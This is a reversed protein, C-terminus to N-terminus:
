YFGVWGAPLEMYHCGVCSLTSTGAGEVDHCDSCNVLGNHNDHVNYLGVKNYVTVDGPLLTNNVIADWDHCSLCFERTGVTAAAAEAPTMSDKTAAKAIDDFSFGMEEHFSVVNASGDAEAPAAAPAEASSALAMGIGATCALAGLAASLAIRLTTTRKM